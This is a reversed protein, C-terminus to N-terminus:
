KKKNKIYKNLKNQNIYIPKKGKSIRVKNEEYEKKIKLNENEIIKEKRIRQEEMFKKHKEQEKQRMKEEYLLDNKKNEEM